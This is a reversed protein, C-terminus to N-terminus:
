FTFLAMSYGDTSATSSVSAIRAKEAPIEIEFTKTLLLPVATDSSTRLRVLTYKKGYELKPSTSSGFVQISHTGTTGSIVVYAPEVLVGGNEYVPYFYGNMKGVGVYSISVNKEFSGAQIECLVDTISAQQAAVSLTITDILIEEAPKSKRTVKTVKYSHSYKLTATEEPYFLATGQVFQKGEDVGVSLPLKVVPDTESGKTSDTLEMEYEESALGVSFFQYTMGRGNDLWKSERLQIVRPDATPITFERLGTFFVEKKSSSSTMMKTITYTKGYELQVAKSSSNSFLTAAISGAGQSSFTLYGTLDFTTEGKVTVILNTSSPMRDATFVLKGTYQTDADFNFSLSNIVAPETTVKVTLTGEVLVDEGTEGGEKLGTVTYTQGYRLLPTEDDLSLKATWSEPETSYVIPFHFTDAEDASNKLFLTHDQPSLVRGALTIVLGKLSIEDIEAKKIESFLM